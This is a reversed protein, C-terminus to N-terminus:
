FLGVKSGKQSMTDFGEADVEYRLVLVCSEGSGMMEEDPGAFGIGRVFDSRGDLLGVCILLSTRV